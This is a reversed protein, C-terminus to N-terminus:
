GQPFHLKEEEAVGQTRQAEANLGNIKGQEGTL